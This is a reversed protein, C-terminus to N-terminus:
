VIGASDIARGLRRVAEALQDMSIMGYSLRLWSCFRSEVRDASFCYAGPVYLVKEEVARAFLASHPGTDRNDKLRMWLYFGGNPVDFSVNEKSVEALFAVLRRRKERYTRRVDAVHEDYWTSQISQALIQQSLNSTGFDHNGKLDVMKAIIPEPGVACGVKLGPALCKSFSELYLVETNEKDFSKLPPDVAEDEGLSRYAADEVVLIPSENQCHRRLIELIERKRTSSWSRGTPNAFYSMVYLFKVRALRGESKLRILVADLSEPVLGDSDTDLGITTAGLSELIGLFVFYTPAELLVIDGPDLLTESLLYLLQQSGNGIMVDNCSVAADPSIVKESLLRDLITRRLSPDGFTSGYQLTARATDADHFLSRCTAEIPEAPLSEQDVFGAALSIMGPVELADRM